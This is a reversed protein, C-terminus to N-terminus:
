MAVNYLFSMGNDDMTFYVCEGDATISHLEGPLSAVPVLNAFGRRWLDVKGGTRGGFWLAGRATELDSPFFGVTELREVVANAGSLRFLTTRGTDATVTVHLVSDEVSMGSVIGGNVPLKGVVELSNNSRDYRHVLVPGNPLTTTVYAGRRDVAIHDRNIGELRILEDTKELADFLRLTNEEILWVHLGEAALVRSSTTTMVRPAGGGASYVSVEGKGKFDTSLLFVYDGDGAIRQANIDAVVDTAGGDRPVRVLSGKDPAVQDLAYVYKGAVALDRIPRAYGIETVTSTCVPAPTPPPPNRSPVYGTIEAVGAGDLLGPVELEGKTGPAELAEGALEDDVACAVNLTTFLIASLLIKTDM